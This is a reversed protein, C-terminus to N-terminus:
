GHHSVGRNLKRMNFFYQAIHALAVARKAAKSMEVKPEEVLSLAREIEQQQTDNVFFVLPNAFHKVNM